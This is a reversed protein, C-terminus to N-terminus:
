RWSRRLLSGSTPHSTAIALGSSAAFDDIHHGVPLGLVKAIAVAITRAVCCYARVAGAEGFLLRHMELYVVEGAPVYRQGCCVIPM